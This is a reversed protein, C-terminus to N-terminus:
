QYSKAGFEIAFRTAGCAGGSHVTPGVNLKSMYKAIAIERLINQPHFEPLTLNPLQRQEAAPRLRRRTATQYGAQVIKVVRGSRGAYVHGHWGRSLLEGPECVAADLYFAEPLM